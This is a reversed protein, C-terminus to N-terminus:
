MKVNHAAIVGMTQFIHLADYANKLVMLMIYQSLTNPSLLSLLPASATLSVSFTFYAAIFRLLKRKKM